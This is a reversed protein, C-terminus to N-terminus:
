AHMSATLKAPAAPECAPARVACKRGFQDIIKAAGLTGVVNTLGVAASALAENAIGADRFVASSFYVIANIGSFQQIVFLMCCTLLTARNPASLIETVKNDPKRKPAACCHASDHKIELM